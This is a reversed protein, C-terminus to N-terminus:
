ISNTYDRPLLIKFTSGKGDTSEVGIKGGHSEVIARVISLGLGSGVTQGRSSDVRYFRDFIKNIEGEPIGIGTDAVNIFVFGNSDGFNIFITGDPKNYKIANEVINTCAETLSERDGTLFVDSGTSNIRVNRSAAAPEVLRVVDDIIEKINITSPRLNVTRNDLRSITLIRDIIKCMRNVADSIKRLVDKYDEASRERGLTVDCYSKIISTPTRLEHSADSLFQRQRGFSHELRNLMKNFSGALGRLEFVSQQADIRKDLETESIMDISDAFLRISRLAWGTILYTGAGCLFFIIPYTIIVIKRFSGLMHYTNQLTDAIQITLLGLSFQYSSSVVRLPVNNPGTIMDFQPESLNYIIPLSENGLSLSPSRAIIIGNADIVQYYHGSLKEGFDGRASSSLEILEVQLQGHSDELGLLSAITDMSSKLHSDTESIVINELRYYLFIELATFVVSFVILFWIVLKLRISNFM